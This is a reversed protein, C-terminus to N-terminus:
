QLAELYTQVYDTIISDLDVTAIYQTPLVIAMELGTSYNDGTVSVTIPGKDITVIDDPLGSVVGDSSVMFSCFVVGGNSLLVEVDESPNQEVYTAVEANKLLFGGTTYTVVEESNFSPRLVIDQVLALEFAFNSLATTVASEVAAAIAEDVETLASFRGDLLEHQIYLTHLVATEVNERTLNGEVTLDIPLSVKSVTRTFVLEDGIELNTTDVRVRNDTLWDFEVDIPLNGSVYCGTDQKSAYGLAFNLDFDPNGTYIFKLISLGMPVEKREKHSSTLIVGAEESNMVV